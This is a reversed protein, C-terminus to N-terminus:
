SCPPIVFLMKNFLVQKRDMLESQNTRQIDKIDNLIMRVDSGPVVGLYEVERLLHLTNHRREPPPHSISQVYFITGQMVGVVIM